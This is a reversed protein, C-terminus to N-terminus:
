SEETRHVLDGAIFILIVLSAFAPYPEWPIVGGRVATFMAFAMLFAGGFLFLSAIFPFILRLGSYVKSPMKEEREKM